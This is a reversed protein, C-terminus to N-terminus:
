ATLKALNEFHPRPLYDSGYINMLSISLDHKHHDPLVYPSGGLVEYRHELAAFGYKHDRMNWHLFTMGKHEAIFHFFKELMSRELEDFTPQREKKWLETERHISFSDTAGSSLNRVAISAVRPPGQQSQFFSQCAYHVIYAAEPRGFLRDLRQREERQRNPNPAVM